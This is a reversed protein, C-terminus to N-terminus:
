SSFLALPVMEETLYWSHLHVKKEASSSITDDPYNQIDKLLKLDNIPSDAPLPCTVWWPVYILVIFKVFRILKEEQTSKIICNKPLESSIKNRMLIISIAIIARMMWRAKTIAGPRPMKFNSVDGTLLVLSVKLLSTYDGRYAFKKNNLITKILEVVESKRAQYNEEIELFYLNSVDMYSLHDYNDRFRQFLTIEPSKAVEIKLGDWVGSLIVEGIHHRCPGWLLEREM